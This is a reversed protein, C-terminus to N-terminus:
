SSGNRRNRKMEAGRSCNNEVNIAQGVTEVTRERLCMARRGFLCRLSVGCKSCRGVVSVMSKVRTKMTEARAARALAWAAVM